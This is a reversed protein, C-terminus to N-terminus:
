SECNTTTEGNTCDDVGSGGDISDTGTGGDLQDRDDRGALVDGGGAADIYDFHPGGILRNAGDDGWLHNVALQSGTLNEIGALSDFGEGTASGTALSASIGSRSDEFSATDAGDGGEYVDSGKGGVLRDAGSGGRLTDAGKGGCIRDNGGRGDITDDGAKGVIVDDGATGHLDDSGPSGVLTARKGLCTQPAAAATPMGSLVLVAALIPLSCRMLNCGRVDSRENIAAM